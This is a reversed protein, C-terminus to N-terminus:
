VSGLLGFALMVIFIAAYFLCGVAMFHGYVAIARKWFSTSVLWGNYHEHDM